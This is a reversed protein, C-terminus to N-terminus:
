YSISLNSSFCGVIMYLMALNFDNGADKIAAQLRKEKLSVEKDNHLEEPKVRRDAAPLIHLIRGQFTSKDMAEYPARAHNPSSYSIFALGKPEKTKRDIPIHTEM